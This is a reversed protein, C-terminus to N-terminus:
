NSLLLPTFLREYLAISNVVSREKDVFNVLTVADKIDNLKKLQVM